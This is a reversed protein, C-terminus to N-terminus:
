GYALIAPLDMENLEAGAWHDSLNFVLLELYGEM